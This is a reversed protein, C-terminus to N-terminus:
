SEPCHYKSGQSQSPGGRYGATSVSDGKVSGEEESWSVQQSHKGLLGQHLEPKQSGECQRVTTHSEPPYKEWERYLFLGIARSDSLGELYRAEM